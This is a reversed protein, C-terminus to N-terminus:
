DWRPGKEDHRAPVEQIVIQEAPDRFEDKDPDHVKGLLPFGPKWCRVMESRSFFVLEYDVSHWVVKPKFPCSEECLRCWNCRGLDIAYWAAKPVRKGAENVQPALAICASPCAKVCLGCATCREVDYLLVGRFMPEPALKERPYQITISPRFLSVLTVRLGKGVAWADRGIRALHDILAM